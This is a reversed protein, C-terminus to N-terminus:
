APEDKREAAGHDPKRQSYILFYGFSTEQEYNIDLFSKLALSKELAEWSTM